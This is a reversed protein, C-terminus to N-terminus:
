IVIQKRLKFPLSNRKARELDLKFTAFNKLNSYLKLRSIVNM